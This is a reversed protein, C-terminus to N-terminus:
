YIDVVIFLFINSNIILSFTSNIYYVYIISHVNWALLQFLRSGNFDVEVFQIINIWTKIECWLSEIHAEIRIALYNQKLAEGDFLHINLVLKGWQSM